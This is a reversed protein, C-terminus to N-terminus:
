ISVNVNFNVNANKNQLPLFCFFLLFINPSNPGLFFLIPKPSNPRPFFYRNRNESFKPKFLFKTELYFDRNQNENLIKTEDNLSLLYWDCQFHQNTKTRSIQSSYFINKKTATQAYPTHMTQVAAYQRMLNCFSDNPVKDGLDCFYDLYKRRPQFFIGDSYEGWLVETESTAFLIPPFATLSTAFLILISDKLYQRQPQLSLWNSYQWWSVVNRLNLFIPISKGLNQRRPQLFSESYEGWPITDSRGGGLWGFPPNNSKSRSNGKHVVWLSHADITTIRM